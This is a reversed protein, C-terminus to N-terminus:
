HERGDPPRAGAAPGRAGRGPRGPRPGTPGAAGGRGAGSGATGPGGAPGARQVAALAPVVLLLGPVRQGGAQARLAHRSGDGRRPRAVPVFFAVAAATVDRRAYGVTLFM